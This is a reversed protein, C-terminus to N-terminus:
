IGHVTAIRDSRESGFQIGVALATRRGDSDEVWKMPGPPLSEPSELSLFRQIDHDLDPLMGHVFPFGGGFKVPINVDDIYERLTPLVESDLLVVINEATYPDVWGKM